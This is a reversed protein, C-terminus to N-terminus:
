VVELQIVHLGFLLKWTKTASNSGVQASDVSSCSAFLSWLLSGERGEHVTTSMCECMLHCATMKLCVEASYM